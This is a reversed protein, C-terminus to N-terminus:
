NEHYLLECAFEELVVRKTVPLSRARYTVENLVDYRTVEDHRLYIYAGDEDRVFGRRGDPHTAIFMQLVRAAAREGVRQTVARAVWRLFDRSAPTRELARIRPTLEEFSLRFQESWRLLEALAAVPDACLGEAFTYAPGTLVISNQCATRQLAASIRVGRHHDLGIDFGVIYRDRTLPDWGDHSLVLARVGGGSDVSTRHVVYRTRRILEELANTFAVPDYPLFEESDSLPYFQFALPPADSQRRIQVLCRGDSLSRFAANLYQRTDDAPVHTTLLRRPLGAHHLMRRAFFPTCELTEDGIVLYGADDVRFESLRTWTADYEGGLVERL